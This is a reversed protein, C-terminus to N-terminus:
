RLTWKGDWHEDFDIQGLQERRWNDNEFSIKEDGVYFDEIVLGIGGPSQAGLQVENGEEDTFVRFTSKGVDTIEPALTEIWINKMLFMDINNLPNIGVLNPCIGECRANTVSYNSLTKSVNATRTSEQDLYSVASGAIGRPWFVQQTQYRTHVVQVADVTVNDVDRAYWGFQIMPANNTKWVTMRECLVDSYYTKIGDDGVHYFVDRVHSGPYMQIGDTQGFFAGVQKYDSADVSFSTVDDGYFDMSNFPPANTTLGHITWRTGPASEGRWMKLSTNDSKVNEYGQATNAQYVYQEGSLVGFGTARLDLAHSHYQIAGKVYAGPAMYVPPFYLTSEKVQTLDTVLGEPVTYTDRTLDPVYKDAPFPSMFVLLANLPEVGMVPNLEDDYEEVYRAGNPNKNQVYHGNTMNGPDGIRYEWLNDNFEVSFRHGNEHFPVTILVADGDVEVDFDLTTPRIVVESAEVPGGERRTVRVITDETSLYQTWAMDVGIDVEIEIQDDVDCLSTLDDPKCIKGNGNRPISEYVFSDFFRDPSSASAVQIDYVHSQRVNEDQVRHFPNIEGTVHWWTKLVDSDATNNVPTCKSKSQAQASTVLALFGTAQILSEALM